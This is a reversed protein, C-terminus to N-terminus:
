SRTTGVDTLLSPRNGKDAKLIVIDKDKKLKTLVQREKKLMNDQPPRARKLINAVETRVEAKHTDDLKFIFSEIEAIIEM